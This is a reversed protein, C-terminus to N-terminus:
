GAAPHQGSCVPPASWRRPARGPTSPGARSRWRGRRCGPCRTSPPAPSRSSAAPPAPTRRGPRTPRCGATSRRCPRATRADGVQRDRLPPDGLQVRRVERRDVRPLPPAVGVPLDGPVAADRLGREPGVDPLAPAGAGGLDLVELRLRRRVREVVVNQATSSRAAPPSGPAPTRPPWSTPGPGACGRCARPSGACRRAGSTARRGRACSTPRSSRARSPRAAAPRRRGSGARCPCRCRPSAARARRPARASRRRRGVAGGPLPRQLVDLVALEVQPGAVAGEAPGGDLVLLAHAVGGQATPQVGM